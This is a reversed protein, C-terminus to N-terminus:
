LQPFIVYAGSYYAILGAIAAILLNLLNGSLTITWMLHTRDLALRKLRPSADDWNMKEEAAEKGLVEELVSYLAWEKKWGGWMPATKIVIWVGIFEPKRMLICTLYIISELSGLLYVPKKERETIDIRAYLRDLISPIILRGGFVAFLYAGVIWLIQCCLNADNTPDM